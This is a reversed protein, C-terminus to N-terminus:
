SGGVDLRLNSRTAQKVSFVRLLHLAAFAEYTNVSQDMGQQFREGQFGIIRYTFFGLCPSLHSCDYPSLTQLILRSNLNLSTRSQHPSKLRYETSCYLRRTLGQWGVSDPFIIIRLVDNNVTSVMNEYCKNCLLQYNAQIEDGWKIM